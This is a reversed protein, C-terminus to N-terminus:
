GADYFRDRSAERQEASRARFRATSASVTRWMSRTGAASPAWPAANGPAVGMAGGAAYVDQNAGLFVFVWGAERRAAILEFVTDRTHEVSSNELGDTVIVVVQDEAPQGLAGRAAIRADIRGVMRGVADYLPTGGRPSYAGRDLDTVERLDVADILLDFPGQSDFQALTVRAVGPARRQEALLENFGGVIDDAISAMSGSRDLVVSLHVPAPTQPAPRATM